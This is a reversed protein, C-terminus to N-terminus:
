RWLTTNVRSLLPNTVAKMNPNTIYEILFHGRLRRLLPTSTAVYMSCQNIINCFFVYANQQRDPAQIFINITYFYM